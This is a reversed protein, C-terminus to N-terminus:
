VNTNGLDPKCTLYPPIECKCIMRDHLYKEGVYMLRDGFKCQPTSSSPPTSAPVYEGEDSPCLWSRPCCDEPNLYRPACYKQIKDSHLTATTCNVTQCLPQDLKGNFSKDCICNVCKKTPHRFREGERHVTKGVECKVDSFPPCKQEVHCCRNQEYALYCGPKIFDPVWFEACSDSPVVCSFLGNDRCTCKAHSCDSAVDEEDPQEGAKYYKGKLYCTGKLRNYFHSCDYEIPCCPNSASFKPICQLDEYVLTPVSCENCEGNVSFRTVVFLTFILYAIM